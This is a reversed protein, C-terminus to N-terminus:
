LINELLACNHQAVEELAGMLDDLALLAETRANEELTTALRRMMGDVDRTHHHDILYNLWHADRQWLAHLFAQEARAAEMQGAALQRRLAHLGDLYGLATKQQLDDLWAGCGFTVLSLTIILILARKM